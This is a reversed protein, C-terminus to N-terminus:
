YTLQVGASVTWDTKELGPLPQNRYLSDYGLTLALWGAVPAALSARWQFESDETDDLNVVWAASAEVSSKEQFFYKYLGAVRATTFDDEQSATDERQRLGVGAELDLQQPNPIIAHFALGTGEDFQREIGGFPDRRWSALGYASLRPTFTYDGRLGASYRGANEVGHDRGYVADADQAFGWSGTKWELKDGALVTLVETNGGTQVYGLKAKATVPKQAADSDAARSARPAAAAAVCVILLARAIRGM